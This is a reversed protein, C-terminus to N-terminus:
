KSDWEDKIAQQYGEDYAKKKIKEMERIAQERGKIIGKAYSTDDRQKEIEKSVLEVWDKNLSWFFPPKEVIPPDPWPMDNIIKAITKWTDPQTM